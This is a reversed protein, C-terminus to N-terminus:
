DYRLHKPLNDKITLVAGATEIMIDRRTEVGGDITLLRPAPDLRVVGAKQYFFVLAVFLGSLARFANRLNADRYNTDLHHKVKNYATWWRPTKPDHVSWNQWPRIELGYRMTRVKADSFALGHRLVLENRYGQECRAVSSDDMTSCLRKLVTDTESAASLLIKAFQTSHVHINVECPEVYQFTDM